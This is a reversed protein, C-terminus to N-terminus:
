GLVGALKVAPKLRLGPLGGAIALTARDRHRGVMFPELLQLAAGRHGLDEVQWDMHHGRFLDLRHGRDKFDAVQDAPDVNWGIAIGVRDIDGLGQGLTGARAPRLNDLVALDSANTMVAFPDGPDIGLVAHDVGIVHHQGAAHPGAIQPRANAHCYREVGTLVVVHHKFTHGPDIGAQRHQAVVVMAAIVLVIGSLQQDARELGIGAWPPHVANGLVEAEIFDGPAEFM